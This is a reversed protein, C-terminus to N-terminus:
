RAGGEQQSSASPCQEATFFTRATVHQGSTDSALFVARDNKADAYPRRYAIQLSDPTIQQFQGEPDGGPTDIRYLANEWTFVFHEDSGDNELNAPESRFYDPRQMPSFGLRKGDQAAELREFQSDLYGGASDRPTYLV